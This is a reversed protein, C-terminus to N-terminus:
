IKGKKGSEKFFGRVRNETKEAFAISITYNKELFDGEGAGGDLM